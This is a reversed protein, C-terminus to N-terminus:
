HWAQLTDETLPNRLTANVQPLCRWNFIASGKLQFHQAYGGARQTDYIIM